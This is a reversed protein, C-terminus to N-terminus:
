RASHPLGFLADFAWTFLYTYVVFLAILGAEYALAAMWGVHLWWAMIPVCILVLGGEFLVAHLARRAPSRGTTTQRTEWAEFLANFSVSWTMAITATLASLTLSQAVNADSMLLLGLSAVAIGLTEFSVAYLIKRQFPPM